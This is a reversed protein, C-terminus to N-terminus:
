TSISLQCSLFFELVKLANIAILKGGRSPIAKEIGVSRFDFTKMELVGVSLDDPV